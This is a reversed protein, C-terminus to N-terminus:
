GVLVGRGFNTATLLQFVVALPLTNDTGNLFVPGGPLLQSALLNGATVADALFMSTIQNGVTSGTPTFFLSASQISQDYTGIAYPGHWVIAQRAYGTYTAETIATLDQSPNLGPTPFQGLGLFLGDLPGSYPGAIAHDILAALIRELLVTTVVWM